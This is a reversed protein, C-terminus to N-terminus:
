RHRGAELDSELKVLDKELSEAAERISALNFKVQKIKAVLYGHTPMISYGLRTRKAACMGSTDCNGCPVTCLGQPTQKSTPM